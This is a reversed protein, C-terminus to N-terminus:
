CTTERTTMDQSKISDDKNDGRQGDQSPSSDIVEVSVKM